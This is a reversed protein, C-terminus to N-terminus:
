ASRNRRQGDDGSRDEDVESPYPLGGSGVVTGTGCFQPRVGEAM